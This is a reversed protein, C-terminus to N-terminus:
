HGLHYVNVKDGIVRDISYTFGDSMLKLSYNEDGCGRALLSPTGPFASRIWINHKQSLEELDKAFQLIKDAEVGGKWPLDTWIVEAFQRAKYVFSDIIPRTAYLDKEEVRSLEYSQEIGFPIGLKEESIYGRADFFVGDTNTPDLFAHRIKGNVMLGFIPWGLGRHLAIAFAYCEGELFIAECLNQLFKVTEKDPNCIVAM